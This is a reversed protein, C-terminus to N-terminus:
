LRAASRAAVAAGFSHGILAISGDIDRDLIEVVADVVEDFNGANCPTKGHGPLDLLAVRIGARSLLNVVSAWTDTDGFMGHLLVATVPVEPVDESARCRNIYIEGYRSRCLVSNAPATDTISASTASAGGSVAIVDARTIRGNPGTGKIRTLDLG